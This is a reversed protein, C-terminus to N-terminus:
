DDPSKRELKALEHKKIKLEIQRIEDETKQVRANEKFAQNDLRTKARLALIKYFVIFFGLLTTIIWLLTPYQTLVLPLLYKWCLLMLSTIPAASYAFLEPM